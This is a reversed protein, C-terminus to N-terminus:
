TEIAFVLEKNRGQERSWEDNDVGFTWQRATECKDYDDTPPVALFYDGKTTPCKVQLIRLVKDRTSKDQRIPFDILQMDDQKHLVSGKCKEIVRELGIKRLLMAREQANNSNLVMTPDIDEPKAEHLKKSIKVGAVYQYRRYREVWVGTRQKNEFQGQAYLRGKIDYFSFKFNGDRSYNLSDVRDWNRTETFPIGRPLARLDFHGEMKFWLKGNRHKAILVRDQAKLWFATAGNTYIFKQWLCRGRAYFTKVIGKKGFMKQDKRTTLGHMGKGEGHYRYHQEQGKQLKIKEYHGYKVSYVIKGKRKIVEDTIVSDKVNVKTIHQRDKITITGNSCEDTFSRYARGFQSVRVLKQGGGYFM